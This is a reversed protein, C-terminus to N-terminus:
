WHERRPDGLRVHKRRLREARAKVAQLEEYLDKLVLDRSMDRYRGAPIPRGISVAIDAGTPPLFFPSLKPWKRTRPLADFAGAIGIPIIPAEIRNILLMIGPKLQQIAGTSTREGEPFVLVAQGDKLQELITKLGDKAVGQQDVPVANLRDILAGFFRNRFLTKRALFCLHRRTACGVISPDLFSQHNSILLAPGSVPMFERGEFRYNFGWTLATFSLWHGMEYLLWSYRPRM